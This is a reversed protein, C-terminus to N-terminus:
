AKRRRWVLFIAGAAVAVMILGVVIAGIGFTLAAQPESSGFVDIEAGPIFSILAFLLGAFLSLAGPCGCLLLGAVTVLIAITRKDM